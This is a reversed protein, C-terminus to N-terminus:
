KLMQMTACASPSDLQEERMSKDSQRLTGRPSEGLPLPLDAQEKIGDHCM